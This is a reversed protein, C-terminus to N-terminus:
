EKLLEEWLKERCAIVRRDFEERTLSPNQDNLARFIEDPHRGELTAVLVHRCFDDDLDRLAALIKDM